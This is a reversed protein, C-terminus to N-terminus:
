EVEKALPQDFQRNKSFCYYLVNCCKMYYARVEDENKSMLNSQNIFVLWHFIHRLPLCFMKYRKGDSGTATSLVSVSSLIADEKIKRRQSEIDVCLVDCIPKIPILEVGNDQIVSITKGNITAISKNQMVYRRETSQNARFRRILRKILKKMISSTKVKKYLFVAACKGNTLVLLKWGSPNFIRLFLVAAIYLCLFLGCIRAILRHGVFHVIVV